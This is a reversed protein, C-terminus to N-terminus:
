ISNEMQKIDSVRDAAKDILESLKGIFVGTNSGEIWISIKGAGFFSYQYDNFRIDNDLVHATEILMENNLRLVTSQM